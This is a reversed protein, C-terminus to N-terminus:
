FLRGFVQGGRRLVAHGIFRSYGGLTVIVKRAHSMYFFDADANGEELNMSVNYGAKEAAEQICYAYVKSKEYLNPLQSGGRIVVQPARSQWIDTLFEYLSKLAKYGRFSTDYPEAGDRLIHLVSEDALEIKDGLRLHVVIAAPDPKTFGPEGEHADVLIDLLTENGRKEFMFGHPPCALDYYEGAITWDALSAHDTPTPCGRCVKVCDGLRYDEWEPYTHFPTLNRPEHVCAQIWHDDPWWGSPTDKPERYWTINNDDPERAYRWQEQPSLRPFETTTTTSTTTAPTTTTTTTTTAPTTTTTTTAATTADTTSVSVTTTASVTSTPTTTIIATTTAAVTTTSTTTTSEVAPPPPPLATNQFPSDGDGVPNQQNNKNHHHPDPHTSHNGLGHTVFLFLGGMLLLVALSATRGRPKDNEDDNSELAISGDTDIENEEDDHFSVVRYKASRQVNFINPLELTPM